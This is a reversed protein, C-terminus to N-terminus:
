DILDGRYNRVFSIFAGRRPRPSGYSECGGEVAKILVRARIVFRAEDYGRERKPARSDSRYRLAVRVGFPRAGATFSLPPDPQSITHRVVRQPPRRSDPGAVAHRDFIARRSM